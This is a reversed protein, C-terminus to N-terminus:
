GFLCETLEYKLRPKLKTYMDFNKIILNNDEVLSIKVFQRISYYLPAPIQEDSRAKDLKSIWWDLDEIKDAVIDNFQREATM